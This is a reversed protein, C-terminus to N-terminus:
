VILYYYSSFFYTLCNSLVWQLFMKNLAHPKSNWGRPSFAYLSNKELFNFDCIQFFYIFIYHIITIIGVYFGYIIGVDFM